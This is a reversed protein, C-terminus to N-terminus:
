PRVNRNGFHSPIGYLGWLDVIFLEFIKSTKNTSILFCGRTQKTHLFLACAKDLVSLSVSSSVSLFFKVVKAYPHGMRIHWLEYLNEEKATIEISRFRFMRGALKGAGILM